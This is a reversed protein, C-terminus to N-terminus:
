KTEKKEGKPKDFNITESHSEEATISIGNNGVAKTTIEGVRITYVHNRLLPWPMNSANNQQVLTEYAGMRNSLKPYDKLTGTNGSKAQKEYFYGTDSNRYEPVLPSKNCEKPDALAIGYRYDGVQVLWYCVTAKGSGVEDINQLSSPDNVNREGTYVVYHYNGIIDQYYDDCYDQTNRQVCSNFIRPYPCYVGGKKYGGNKYNNLKEIVDNSKAYGDFNWFGKEHWAGYFWAMRKPYEELSGSISNVKDDLAIPGNRIIDYWECHSGDTAKDKGDHISAGKWIEDTPTWVDMPECRAYINPYYLLVFDAKRPLVLELKVVSRLLSISKFDYHNDEETQGNTIKSLNFPTGKVWNNISAFAQIGYMPIPHEYTLHAFKRVITSNGDPGIQVKNDDNDGWDVWTSTAGMTPRYTGDITYSTKGSIFDYVGYNGYFHGNYELPDGIVDNGLDAVKDVSRDNWNKGDYIPDYQCHHLDYVKIIKQDDQLVNADESGWRTDTTKWDPGNKISYGGRTLTDKYQTGDNKTRLWDNGSNDRGNIGMNWEINPRNALIAIKFAVNGTKDKYIDKGEADKDNIDEGTLVRRIEEWNWKESEDNGYAYIPVAVFWESYDNDGTPVIKKVWRSKSEFLFRDERDFFLVRFKEPDIYSELKELQEARGGVAEVARTGGMNDLTVRFNLSYGDTFIEPIENDEIGVQINDDVCSILTICAFLPALIRYRM